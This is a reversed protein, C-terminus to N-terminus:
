YLNTLGSWAVFLMALFVSADDSGIEKRSPNMRSSYASFTPAKRLRPALRGCFVRNRRKTMKEATATIPM